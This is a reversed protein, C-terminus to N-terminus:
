QIPFKRFSGQLKFLMRLQYPLSKNRDIYFGLYTLIQEIDAKLWLIAREFREKEMNRRFLPLTTNSGFDRILSRSGMYLLQYRL